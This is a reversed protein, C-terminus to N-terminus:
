SIDIPPPITVTAGHRQVSDTTGAMWANFWANLAQVNSVPEPPQPLKNAYTVKAWDILKQLDPDSITYNRTGSALASGTLSCTITGM